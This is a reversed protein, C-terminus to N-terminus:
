DGARMDNKPCSPSLYAFLAVASRYILPKGRRRRRYPHSSFCPGSVVTCVRTLFMSALRNPSFGDWCKLQITELVKAVAQHIM